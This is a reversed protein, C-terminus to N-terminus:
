KAACPNCSQAACPNCSKAACPNCSKAACPNCAGCSKTSVACPNCASCAAYGPQAAGGIGIAAAMAMPIVTSGLLRTRYSRKM